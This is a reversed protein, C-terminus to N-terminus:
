PAPAPGDRRGRALERSLAARAEENRVTARTAALVQAARVRAAAEAEVLAPAAHGSERLRAALALADADVPLRHLHAALAAAAEDGRGLRGLLRARQRDLDDLPGFRARLGDHIALAAAPDGHAAEIRLGARHQAETPSVGDGALGTAVMAAVAAAPAAAALGLLRPIAIPPAYSWSLGALVALCLLGGPQSLHSEVLIGTGAACWGVLLAAPVAEARRQWLPRITAWLAWGLLGALVLGGDLLAQLIENHAHELYSPVTLWAAAFSPQEPLVAIAAGPGYGVALHPGALAEAAARWIHVRQAAGAGLSGPDGLGATATAAALVLCGGGAALLPLHWRAPLRLILASALIAGGVLWVAHCPDGGLQGGALLGGLGGAALAYVWWGASGRHLFRALGLACLPLAAGVDFNVNGFPADTGIMLLDGLGNIQTLCALGLIGLGAGAAGALGDGPRAICALALACALAAGREGLWLAGPGTVPAWLLAAAQWALALVLPLVVAPLAARRVCAWGAVAAGVVLWLDASRGLQVGHKLESFWWWLACSLALGLPLLALALDTRRDSAAANM